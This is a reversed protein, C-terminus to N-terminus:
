GAVPIEARVTTGDGNSLALTGGLAEARAQINGLGYGGGDGAPGGFAGDDRVVVAVRDGTAEVTVRLRTGGSHRVANRVAEQGIRYLALAHTPSLARDVEGHAAAEVALGLPAAQDRAFAGLRDALADPTLADHGLAWVAERLSGMTRRARQEVSRFADADRGEAAARLRAVEARTLIAAVEAGVHDHLDRSIREREARVREALELERVRARL